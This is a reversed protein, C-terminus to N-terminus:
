GAHFTWPPPYGRVVDVDEIYFVARCGNACYLCLGPPDLSDIVNSGILEDNLPELRGGQEGYLNFGVNGTETATSWTFLVQEGQRESKFYSLTVPTPTGGAEMAQSPTIKSRAQWPRTVSRLRLLRPYITSGSVPISPVLQLIATVPTTSSSSPTSAGTPSCNVTFSQAELADGFDTDNNWDFWAYLTRTGAPDCTAVVSATGEGSNWNGTWTVGDDTAQFQYDTMNIGDTEGPYGGLGPLRTGLYTTSNINMAGGDNFLNMNLYKSPLHGFNGNLYSASDTNSLVTGSYTGYAQATNTAYGAVATIPTVVDIICTAIHLDYPDGTVAVPLPDILSDPDWECGSLPVGIPDNIGISSIPVDGTNEVTFKYYVTSGAPIIVSDYWPGSSTTGVQKELSIGPMLERVLLNATTTNGNVTSGNIVHSVNNTTNEKVGTTIGVVNVTLYCTSGAPM